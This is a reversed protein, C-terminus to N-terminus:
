SYRIRPDLYAYLVDVLLNILIFVVAFSLVAAQVVQYDRGRVADLVLLGVGPWNFVSEVVVSGTLLSGVIIGFYTLPAIAANRATHKWIVKREDLGKIRAFKVYESDLVELMSSRMLRMLAAVQFWGLTIVPLVMHEWGGRGSSPFWNLGVSFVWILVIGLWFSPLSQGLLAIVKAFSDVITGKKVASLVGVPIAILLSVLMAFGALQMTAPFRSLVLEQASYGRWKFSEGFEGQLANGVFTFYQLHLPEDLGWLRTLREFDEPTADLPLMADLPNGSLRALGFVVVSLIMLTVAGQVVRILIYRQM